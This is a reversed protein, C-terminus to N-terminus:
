KNKFTCCKTGSKTTVDNCTCGVLVSDANCRYNENYTCNEAKCSIASDTTANQAYMMNSAGATREEFSACATQDSERAAPGEVNIGPLTCLNDRYHRCSTVQCQLKNKM